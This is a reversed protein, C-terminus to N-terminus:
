ELNEKSPAGSKLGSVAEAIAGSNLRASVPKAASGELYGNYLFKRWAVEDGGGIEAFTERVVEYSSVKDVGAIRALVEIETLGGFLPQILPQVPVLTGDSTLADGWSELYHAAPFHWDSNAFSEDEYYGLRVVTKAKRQTKAWDLEASASYAPNGGLLVLTEVEGANLSKALDALNGEKLDPAGHLVVTKGINGLASNIANALLHVALPQRYGAVVLSAGKNAVLDKACESIWKADVGAPSTSSGQGTVAAALAQAIQAVASAPVRLRHDANAGTLTMLGEVVYLRNMESKPTEIRRGDVFKRISNHADEEAGIFDCDLSVIVKAKDYNFQPKVSAGFAQSAARRHIDTDIPEHIFWKAKPFKKSILKQLRLRSPSTNCELLFALGEGGNEQAKKSLENLFDAAAEPTANTGGKTFRRSRDPDYLNLISAQAWRDTGGNSGPFQANGEVKIPRGEYSKALLPIAGGRTPMATAYFQSTGYVYDDPQKGFPELKEVPRRCGSAALGLGALMFSASMIKVFHRRTLPDEWESAGSPFEREMWQRFEPAAAM